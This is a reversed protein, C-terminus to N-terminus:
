ENNTEKMVLYMAFVPFGFCAVWEAFDTLIFDIMSSIISSYGYGFTVRLESAIITHCEIVNIVASAEASVITFWFIVKAWKVSPKKLLYILAAIGALYFLLTLIYPGSKVMAIIWVALMVCLCGNNVHKKLALLVIGAVSLLVIISTILDSQNLYVLINCCNTILLLKFLDLKKM